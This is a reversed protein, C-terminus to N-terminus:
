EYQTCCREIHVDFMEIAYIDKKHTINLISNIKNFNINQVM